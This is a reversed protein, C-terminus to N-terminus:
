NIVHADAGDASLPPLQTGQLEAIKADRQALQAELEKIKEDKQALVRREGQIAAGLNVLENQAQNRQAEVVRIADQYFEPTPGQQDTM